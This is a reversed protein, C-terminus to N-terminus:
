KQGVLQIIWAHDNTAKETKVYNSYDDSKSKDYYIYTKKFGAEHLAERVEPITWIRWDYTFANEMMTGDLFKFHIAYHGNRNLPNFSKQDWIYRFKFGDNAKVTRQEKLKQIMGPGGTMELILLGKPKLSKLCSKFYKILVAREKFIFFSFNCAGILDVKPSTVSIVNLRKLKLRKKEDATLPDFHHKKGYALPNPDLDLGLATNQKNSKIWEKSLYFTGCFDERLSRSPKKNLEESIAQFIEIQTETSQVSLEYLFHKNKKM